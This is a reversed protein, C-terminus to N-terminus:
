HKKRIISPHTVDLISVRVVKSIGGGEAGGKDLSALAEIQTNM